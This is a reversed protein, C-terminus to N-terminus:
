SPQEPGAKVQLSLEEIYEILKGWDDDVDLSNSWELDSAYAEIRDLIPFQESWEQFHDSFTLSLLASALNEKAKVDMNKNYKEVLEVSSGLFDDITRLEQWNKAM